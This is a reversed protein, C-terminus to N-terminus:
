EVRKKAGSYDPLLPKMQKGSYIEQLPTEVSEGVTRGDPLVIHALFAMEFSEIDSAVAELKAKICLLLARWRERRHRQAKESAGEALPLSHGTFTLRRQAGSLEEIIFAPLNGGQDGGSPEAGSWANRLADVDFLAM